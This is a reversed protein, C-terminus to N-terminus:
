PRPLPQYLLGHGFAEGGAKLRSSVTNRLLSFFVVLAAAVVMLLVTIELTSQAREDSRM